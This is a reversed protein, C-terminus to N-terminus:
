REVIVTRSGDVSNENQIELLERVQARTYTQGHLNVITTQGRERPATDSGLGPQTSVPNAPTGLAAGGGGVQSAQMFGTAAILGVQVAGWAKVAAARAIATYPDGSTLQLTAGVATNQIAKAIALGKNIAILAIAAAKSEGAFTQLFGIGAHMAGMRADTAQQEAAATAAVRERALQMDFDASDQMLRRENAHFEQIQELKRLRLEEQAAALEEETVMVEAGFGRQREIQEVLRQAHSQAQQDLLRERARVAAEDVGGGAGGGGRRRGGAAAAGGTGLAMIRREWEDLEERAKKGDEILAQRIAKFGSFDGRALAALQAAMGGLDRGIGQLVFSVNGGLITLVKFTEPLIKFSNDLGKAAEATKKIDGQLAQEAFM